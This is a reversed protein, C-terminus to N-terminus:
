RRARATTASCRAATPSSRLRMPLATTWAATSPASNRTAITTDLESALDTIAQCLDGYDHVVQEVTFGNLSLERGHRTAAAGLESFHSPGGAIGSVAMSQQISASQEMELTKIVQDLFLPIGFELDKDHASPASRKATKAICRTILQDRHLSLFDHLM